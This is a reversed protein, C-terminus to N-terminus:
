GDKESGKTYFRIILYISFVGVIFGTMIGVVIWIPQDGQWRSVYSGGFYGALMCIILDAGIASVLGVARWPNDQSRPKNM